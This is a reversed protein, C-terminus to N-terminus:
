KTRVLHITGAGVPLTIDQGIWTLTCDELEATVISGPEALRKLHVTVYGQYTKGAFNIVAKSSNRLEEWPPEGTLALTIRLTDNTAADRATIILEYGDASRQLFAFCDPSRGWFKKVGHISFDVYSDSYDASGYASVTLLALLIIASAAQKKM